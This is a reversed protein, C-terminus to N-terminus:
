LKTRFGILTVFDHARFGQKLNLIRSKIRIKHREKPQLLRLACMSPFDTCFFYFTTTCKFNLTITVLFSTIRCDFTSDKSIRLSAATARGTILRWPSIECVAKSCKSVRIYLAVNISCFAKTLISFRIYM